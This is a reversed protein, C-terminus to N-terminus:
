MTEVLVRDSVQRLKNEVIWQKWAESLNLQNLDGQNTTSTQSNSQQRDIELIKLALIAREQASLEESTLLTQLTQIAEEVLDRFRPSQAIASPDVNLALRKEISM